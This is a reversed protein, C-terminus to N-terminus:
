DAAEAAMSRKSPAWQWNLRIGRENTDFFSMAHQRTTPLLLFLLVAALMEITTQTEDESNNPVGSIPKAVM